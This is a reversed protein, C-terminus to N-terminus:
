SCARLSGQCRLLSLEGSALSLQLLPFGGQCVAVVRERCGCSRQPLSLFSEFLRFGGCRCRSCRRTRRRVDLPGGCLQLRLSDSFHLTQLFADYLYRTVARQWRIALARANPGFYTFRVGFSARRRVAASGFRCRLDCSSSASTSVCLVLVPLRQWAPWHQKWAETGSCSGYVPCLLALRGASM